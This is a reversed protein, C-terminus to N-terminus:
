LYWMMGGYNWSKMKKNHHLRKRSSLICRKKMDKRSRTIDRMVWPYEKEAAVRRRSGITSGTRSKRIARKCPNTIM